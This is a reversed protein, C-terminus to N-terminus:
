GGGDDHKQEKQGVTKETAAPMRVAENVIGDEQSSRHFSEAAAVAAEVAALDM